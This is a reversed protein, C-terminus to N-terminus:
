KFVAQYIGKAMKRRGSSSMHCIFDGCDGDGRDVFWNQVITAGKIQSKIMSQLKVYRPPYFGWQNRNGETIKVMSPNFGTLVIAKVGKENCLDVMRQINRISSDLNYYSAADNAGGWIVCYSFKSDIVGKSNRWMWDTRMGGKAVVESKMQTLKTLQDQWGYAYTTHSDGIYLIWKGKTSDRRVLTDKHVKSTTDISKISTSGSPIFKYSYVAFLCFSILASITLITKLKNTM